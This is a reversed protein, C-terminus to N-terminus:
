IDYKCIKHVNGIFIDNGDEEWLPEETRDAEERPPFEEIEEIITPSEPIFNRDDRFFFSDM